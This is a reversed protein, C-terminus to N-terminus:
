DITNIKKWALLPWKWGNYVSQTILNILIFGIIDMGLLFGILSLTLSIFSSYLYSNVFPQYNSLSIFSTARQHNTIIFNYIILLILLNTELIRTHSEILDLVSNGVFIILLSGILYTIFILLTVSIYKKRLELFKRQIQYSSLQPLFTNFPIISISIIVSILQMSLGYQATVSLPLFASILLLSGQGQAYNSITVFGVQTSNKKLALDMHPDRKEQMLKETAQFIKMKSKIVKNVHKSLHFRLLLVSLLNAIGLGILGLGFSILIIQVLIYFFTNTIGVIQIEKVKGLGKIFANYYNFYLGLSIGSSYLLWAVIVPIFDIENTSIWLIYFSMILLFGFVTFGIKTYLKKSTLFIKFLLEYNPEGNENKEPLGYIPIHSAGSYAYTVYRTLVSGLGFDILTALTGISLFVLWLGYESSSVNALIVPLVILTSIIKFGYGFYSILVDTRKINLM